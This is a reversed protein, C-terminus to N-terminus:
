EIALEKNAYDPNFQRYHAFLEALRRAYEAHWKEVDADTPEPIHPLGVPRGRVFVLKVPRPLPLGWRGWFLTMSVGLKRSLTALPGATLASLVTTNGFMYTPILDAGSRLALKVFGKRRNLVVAERAASSYFLELMGGVYLACGPSTALRKKVAPSSADMVGFLGVIDKLVPIWHLVTAVATPFDRAPSGPYREPDGGPDEPAGFAAVMHCAAVFPFVGHPHFCFVFRKGEKVAAHVDRDRIEHFEEFRFYKPMQRMFWTSLVAAGARPLAAAPVCLSAALPALLYLKTRRDSGFAAYGTAGALLIPGLYYALSFTSAALFGACREAPTSRLYSRTPKTLNSPYKAM